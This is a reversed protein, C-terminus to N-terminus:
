TTPFKLHDLINQLQIPLGLLIYAAVIQQSTLLSWCNAAFGKVGPGMIFQVADIIEFAIVTQLRAFMTQNAIVTPLVTLGLHEKNAFQRVSQFAQIVPVANGQVVVVDTQTLMVFM